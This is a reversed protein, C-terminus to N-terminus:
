AVDRAETPGLLLEDLPMALAVALLAADRLTCGNGNEVDGVVFPGVGARDALEAPTWERAIRAALLRVGFAHDADEHATM